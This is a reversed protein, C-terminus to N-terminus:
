SNYFDQFGVLFVKNQGIRGSTKFMILDRKNEFDQCLRSQKWLLDCIFKKLSRLVLVPFCRQDWKYCHEEKWKEVIIVVSYWFGNCYPFIHIGWGANVQEFNLVSVSFGPTFYTWILM